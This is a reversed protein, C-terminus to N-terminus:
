ETLQKEILITKGIEFMGVAGLMDKCGAHIQVEGDSNVSAAVFEDVEDNEVMTRLNDLVELLDKKAKNKKNQGISVIEMM